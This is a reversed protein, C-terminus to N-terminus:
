EVAVTGAILHVPPCGLPDIIRVTAPDVVLDHPPCEAQQESDVQRDARLFLREEVVIM